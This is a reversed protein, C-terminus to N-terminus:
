LVVRKLARLFYLSLEIYFGVIAIYLRLGHRVPKIHSVQEFLGIVHFMHMLMPIFSVIFAAIFVEPVFVGAVALLAVAILVIVAKADWTTFQPASLSAYWFLVSLYAITVAGSVQLTLIHNQVAFETLAYEGALGYATFVFVAGVFQGPLAEHHYYGWRSILVGVVLLSGIGYLLSVSPAIATLTAGFREVASYEVFLAVIGFQVAILSMTAAWLQLRAWLSGM